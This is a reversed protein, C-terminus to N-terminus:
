VEKANNRRAARRGAAFLVLGGVALLGLRSPEPVAAADILRVEDVAANFLFSPDGPTGLELTVSSIRTDSVVGLFYAFSGQQDSLDAIAGNAVSGGATSLRLDGALVDAGAIVYLGFARVPGSLAFSVTDGNSFQRDANDLGLFHIGSSTWLGTQVSPKDGPAFTSASLTFNGGAPGSGSDFGTGVDIDEFDSLHSSGLMVTAADFSLKDQYTTVAAGATGGGLLLTLSLTAGFFRLKRGMSM